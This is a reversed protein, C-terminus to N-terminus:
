RAKDESLFALIRRTVEGPCEDLVWHGCAAIVDGRVNAAVKRMDAATTAGISAEGGVALVPMRLKGRAVDRRVQEADDWVSRYLNFGATLRGPRAYADAYTQRAAGSIRRGDSSMNDYFWDLYLRERGQVLQEPLREVQHFAPFWVGQNPRSNDLGREYSGVGPLSIEFVALRRVMDPRAAALMHAANGGWDHGVFYAARHGLKDMLRAMDLGLTRKDYGKAPVSSEGLGRLDPAIVTYGAQALEPAIHRWAYSTQPFGHMLVVPPGSGGTVYSIRVDGLDASRRRFGAPPWSPEITETAAESQPAQAVVAEGGSCTLAVVSAIALLGLLRRLM